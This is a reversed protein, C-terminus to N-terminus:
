PPARGMMLKFAMRKRFFAVDKGCDHVNEQKPVEAFTKVEWEKGEPANLDGFMHFLPPIAEKLLKVQSAYMEVPDSFLSHKSQDDETKYNSFLSKYTLLTDQVMFGLQGFACEQTYLDFHMAHRIALLKMYANIHEACLLTNSLSLDLLLAPTMEM